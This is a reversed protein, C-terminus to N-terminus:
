VCGCGWVTQCTCQKGDHCFGFKWNGCATHCRPFQGDQFCDYEPYNCCSQGRACLDGVSGCKAKAQVGVALAFALFGQLISRM